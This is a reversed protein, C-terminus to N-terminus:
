MTETAIVLDGQPASADRHSRLTGVHSDRDQGAAVARGEVLRELHQGRAVAADALLEGRERAEPSVQRLVPVVRVGAGGCARDQAIEVRRRELVVLVLLSADQRAERLAVQLRARQRRRRGSSQPM